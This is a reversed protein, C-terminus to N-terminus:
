MREPAEFALVDICAELVEKVLKLLGLYSQKKEEQEETKEEEINQQLNQEAKKEEINEERKKEEM